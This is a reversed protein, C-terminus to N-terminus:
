RNRQALLSAAGIGGLFGFLHAQWSVGAQGPLVGWLIGGYLLAAIAGLVLAAVSREFFGRAWLYGLYGFIVGSAGLHVTYSPATIWVGLGSVGTALLSVLVFDRTSRLLVLWGLVLLPITNATLHAFGVHLFPAFLIQRLGVLTRPRIGFADLPVHWLILDVIELLWLLAILTLLISLHRVLHNGLATIHNRLM